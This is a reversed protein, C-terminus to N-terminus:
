TDYKLTTELLVFFGTLCIMLDPRSEVKIKISSNVLCQKIYLTAITERNSELEM